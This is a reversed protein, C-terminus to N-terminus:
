EHILTKRWDFMTQECPYDEFGLVDPSILGERVGFIIEAEYHKYPLLCEPLERHVHGFRCRLRRIRIWAVVGKKGRLIRRVSDYYTLREGCVPCM